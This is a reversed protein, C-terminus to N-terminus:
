NRNILSDSELTSTESFVGFDRQEQHNHTLKQINHTYRSLMSTLFFPVEPWRSSTIVYKTPITIDALLKPHCLVGKKGKTKM